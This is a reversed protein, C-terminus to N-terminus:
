GAALASSLGHRGAQIANIAAAAEGMRQPGNDLHPIIWGIADEITACVRTPYSSRVVLQLSALAARVAAARFGTGEVLWCACRLDAGVRTMLNSIAKRVEDPPPKAVSPIIVLAAIGTANRAILDRGCQEIAAYASSRMAGRDVLRFVEKWLIIPLM